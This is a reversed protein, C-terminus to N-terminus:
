RISARCSTAQCRRLRLRHERRVRVPDRRPGGPHGRRRQRWRDRVRHAPRHTPTQAPRRHGNRPGQTDGRRRRRLRRRGGPRVAYRCVRAGRRDGRGGAARASLSPRLADRPLRRRLPDSPERATDARGGARRPVRRRELARALPPRDHRGRGDRAGLSPDARRHGHARRIVAWEEDNLAGPKNLIASPIAVKGVDHLQAGARLQQLSDDDFGLRRGIAECLTLVDDSHDATGTDRVELTAMALAMAARRATDRELDEVLQMREGPSTRGAFAVRNRGSRKAERLAADARDLAVWPEVPEDLEAVGCSVTVAPLSGNQAAIEAECASRWSGRRATGPSWWCSSSRAATVSRSGRPVSGDLPARIRRAERRRRRHRARLVDNVERLQDLDVM